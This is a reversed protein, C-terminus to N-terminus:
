EAMRKLLQLFHKKNNHHQSVTFSQNRKSRPRPQIDATRQCDVIRRQQQEVERLGSQWYKWSTEINGAPKLIEKKELSSYNEELHYKM